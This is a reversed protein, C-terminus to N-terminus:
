HKRIEKIVRLREAITKEFGHQSPEYYVTDQEVYSQDVVGSPHDHPYVYGVAGTSRLHA